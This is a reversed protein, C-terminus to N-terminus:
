RIYNRGGRKKKREGVLVRVHLRGVLSSLILIFYFNMILREDLCCSLFRVQKFISAWASKDRLDFDATAPATRAAGTATTSPVAAKDLISPPATTASSPVPPPPPPKAQPQTETTTSTATTTATAAAAASGPPKNKKITPYKTKKPPVTAPAPAATPPPPTPEEKKLPPAVVPSPPPFSDNVIDVPIDEVKTEKKVEKKVQLQARSVSQSEKSQAGAQIKPASTERKVPPTKTKREDKMSIEKSEKKVPKTKAVRPGTSAGGAKAAKGAKTGGGNRGGNGNGTSPGGADRVKWTPNKQRVPKSRAAPLDHDYDGDSLDLSPLPSSQTIRPDTSQTAAEMFEDDDEEVENDEEDSSLVAARRKKGSVPKKSPKVKRAAPAPFSEPVDVEIESEGEDDVEMSDAASYSRRARKASPRQVGVGRVGAVNGYSNNNDADYDDEDSNVV